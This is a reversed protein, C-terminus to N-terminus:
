ELDMKRFLMLLDKATCNQQQNVHNYLKALKIAEDVVPMKVFHHENAFNLYKLLKFADFWLFFRKTFSEINSTNANIEAIAEVFQNMELFQLLPQNQNKLFDNVRDNKSGFLHQPASSIFPKLTLFSDFNYTNYIVEDSDLYKTMARGTGFPVRYSPRPSPFVTATNIERFNGHPIIKQLFYFDEGAKKKNMGGFQLYADASCAMSSGVTHFSFPHGIYRGAWVYYRLHLEYQTIGFYLNEGFEEGELPHEYRISCALTKPNREWLKEIEVLYNKSCTSDADFCAIIKNNAQSDLLRWAAEDMGSKRALGVGAHKKPLDFAKIPFFRLSPSNATKDAKYILDICQTANEKVEEPSDIPYNVVVLVEVACKPRACNMLANLSPWLDPENYSPIVVVLGLDSTTPTILRPKFEINRTFYPHKM